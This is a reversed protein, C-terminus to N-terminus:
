LKPREEPEGDLLAHAEQGGTWPADVEASVDFGIRAQKSRKRMNSLFWALAGVFPSSGLLYQWNNKVFRKSAYRGVLPVHLAAKKHILEKHWWEGDIQIKANAVVYLTYNGSSVPTLEWSWTTPGKPDMVRTAEGILKPELNGEGSVWLQAEMYDSVDSKAKDALSTKLVGPQVTLSAYGTGGQPIEDDADFAYEGPSLSAELAVGVKPWPEEEEAPMQYRPSEASGGSFGSGLNGIANVGAWVIAIELAIVVFIGLCCGAGLVIASRLREKGGKPDGEM